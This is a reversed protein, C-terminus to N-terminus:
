RTPPLYAADVPSSAAGAWTQGPACGDSVNGPPMGADVRSEPPIIGSEPALARGGRIVQIAPISRADTPMTVGARYLQDPAAGSSHVRRDAPLRLGPGTHVHIGTALPRDSTLIQDPVAPGALCLILTAPLIIRQM